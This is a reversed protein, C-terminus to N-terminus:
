VPGASKKEFIFSFRISRLNWCYLKNHFLKAEIKKQQKRPWINRGFIQCESQWGVFDKTGSM